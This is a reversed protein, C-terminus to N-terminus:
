CNDEEFLRQYDEKFAKCFEKRTQKLSPFRYMRKRPGTGGPRYEEVSPILKKTTQYLINKQLAKEM